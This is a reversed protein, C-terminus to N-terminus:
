CFFDERLAGLADDYDRYLLRYPLAMLVKPEKLVNIGKSFVQHLIFAKELLSVYQEAKYKTVSCNKSLSSYKIGDIGSRGIFELM